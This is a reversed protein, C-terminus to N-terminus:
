KTFFDEMIKNEVPKNECFGSSKMIEDIAQERTVNGQLVAISLELSSFPIIRSKMVRFNHLQSFEKCREIRCSTHLCKNTNDTDVWDIEKKLLTKVNKWNYSGKDNLADFDVHVLAPINKGKKSSQVAFQLPRLM